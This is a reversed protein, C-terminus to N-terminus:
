PRRPILPIMRHLVNDRDIFHHKLAGVVHLFILVYLAKAALEHMDMLQGATERGGGIPLAPWEFLGFWLIERGGASSAAWGALPMAILFAYFLVHTGRAVLKQWRPTSDPIPIAPNAIRWGLRALTLVLISLGVSKHINVFERSIPGETAEHASILAIQAVVLAAILWHLVLSVTSYRNRPEAM